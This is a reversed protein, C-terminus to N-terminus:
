CPRLLRWAGGVGISWLPDRAIAVALLREFVAPERALNGVVHAALRPRRLGFLVIETLWTLHRAMRRRRVAYPQLAARDLRGQRLSASLVDAAIEASAFGVSMGEGTIADVFGAADGVLVVGDAVVGSPQRRLPGWTKVDGLMETSGLQLSPCAALIRRLGAAADGRLARAESRDLLAAVNVRHWGDNTMPGLPTLYVEVPPAVHVEVVGRSREAPVALHVRLGYRRDGTPPRALGAWARVPSGLGDAGVVARSRYSGRATAVVMAGPRGGLGTARVGTRVRVKPHRAAIDVLRADFVSRPVGVGFRADPFRGVATHGAAHYAIGVFRAGQVDIGLRSLADVGHPMLGEGCAKERPFTARDLLLVEHGRNALHLATVSGVPGAGVVIVEADLSM